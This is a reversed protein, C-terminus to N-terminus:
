CWCCWCCWCRRPPPLWELALALLAAAQFSPVLLPPLLGPRGTAAAAAADGVLLLLLAEGDEEAAAAAGVALGRGRDEGGDDFVTPAAIRDAALARAWARRSALSSLSRTRSAM